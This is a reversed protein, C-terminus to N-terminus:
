PHLADAVRAYDYLRPLLLPEEVGAECYAVIRDRCQAASGVVYFAEVMADSVLHAAAGEGDQSATARLHPLIDPDFGGKDLLIEGVHPEALLRVLREKLSPLM